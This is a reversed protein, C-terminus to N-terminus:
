EGQDYDGSGNCAPCVDMGDGHICRGVGRCLDDCCVVIEGNGDCRWCYRSGPEVDFRDNKSM